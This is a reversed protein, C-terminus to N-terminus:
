VAVRFNRFSKTESVKLMSESLDVRKKGQINSKSICSDKPDVITAFHKVSKYLYVM